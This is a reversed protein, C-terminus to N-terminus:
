STARAISLSFIVPSESIHGNQEKAVASPLSSSLLRWLIGLEPDQPNRSGEM